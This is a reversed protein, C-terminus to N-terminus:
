LGYFQRLEETTVQHINAVTRVNAPDARLWNVTLNVEQVEGSYLNGAYIISRLLGEEFIDIRYMDGTDEDTVYFYRFWTAPAHHGPRWIAALARDAGRGVAFSNRIPELAIEGTYLNGVRLMEQVSGTGETVNVIAVDGTSKEVVYFYNYVQGPTALSPKWVAAFAEASPSSVIGMFLVALVGVVAVVMPVSSTAVPPVVRSGPSSVVSSVVRSGPSSVVSRTQM